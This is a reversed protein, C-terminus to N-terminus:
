RGTGGTEIEEGKKVDWIALQNRSRGAQIAQDKDKFQQSIDLHLAKPTGDKNREYWGGLFHDSKGKVTPLSKALWKKVQDKIEKRLAERTPPPERNAMQEIEIVHGVKEKPDRSVMYGSTPSRSDKKKAPRYSFGGTKEARELLPEAQQGAHKKAWLALGKPKKGGGGGESSFRGHDDRPHQEEEFGPM